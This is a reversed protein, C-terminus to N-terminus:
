DVDGIGSGLYVPNGRVSSLVAGWSRSVSCQAVIGAKDTITAYSRLLV